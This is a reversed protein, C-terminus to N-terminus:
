YHICKGDYEGAFVYRGVQMMPQESDIDKLVVFDVPPPIYLNWEVNAKSGVTARSFPFGSWEGTDQLNGSM